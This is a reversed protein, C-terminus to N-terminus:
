PAPAPVMDDYPRGQWLDVLEDQTRVSPRVDSLEDAFLEAFNRESLVARRADKFWADPKDVGRAYKESAIPLGMQVADDVPEGVLRREGDAEYLAIWWDDLLGNNVFHLVDELGQLTLPDYSARRSYNGPAFTIPGFTEVLLPAKRLFLELANAKLEWFGPGGREQGPVIAALLSRAHDNNEIWVGTAADARQPDGPLTYTVNAGIFAVLEALTGLYIEKHTPNM